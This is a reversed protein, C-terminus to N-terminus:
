NDACVSGVEVTPACRDVFNIKFTSQMMCTFFLSILLNIMQPIFHANVNSLIFTQPQWTQKHGNEM